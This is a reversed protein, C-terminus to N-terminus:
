QARYPMRTLTRVGPAKGFSATLSSLSNMSRRRSSSCSSIASGLSWFGLRTCTRILSIWSGSVSAWSTASFTAMCISLRTAKRRAMFRATVEAMSAEDFNADTHGISFVPVGGGQQEAVHALVTSSDIGGSLFIGFPVDSRSRRAVAVGIRHDLEDALDATSRRALEANGFHEALDWYQRVTTGGHEALLLHGAPLKRVGALPTLPAPFFDHTLYRRLAVPDLQKRFRPHVLFARLDSAFVLEGSSLRHRTKDVRRGATTPWLAEFQGRNLEVEM